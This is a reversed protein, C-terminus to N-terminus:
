SPGRGPRVRVRREQAYRLMEGAVTVYALLLLVHAPVDIFEPIEAVNSVILHLVELLVLVCCAWLRIASVEAIDNREKPWLWGLTAVTIALLIYLQTPAFPDSSGAASELM